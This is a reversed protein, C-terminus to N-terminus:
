RGPGAGYIRLAGLIREDDPDAHDLLRKAMRVAGYSGRQRLQLVETVYADPNHALTAAVWRKGLSAMDHGRANILEKIRAVQDVSDIVGATLENLRVNVNNREKIALDRVAELFPANARIGRENVRADLLLQEHEQPL